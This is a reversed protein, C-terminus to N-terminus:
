RNKLRHKDECMSVEARDFVTQLTEDKDPEFIALGGAIMIGNIQRSIRNSDELLTMLSDRAIYDNGRLIAVFEDGGTRYVPSHKFVNCVIRCAEKIYQDGVNRGLTENVRSLDNIDCFAVAFPGEEGKSIAQDIRRQEEIFAHRSKVGTLSDHNAKRLARAHEQERRIQEDVSSIGVVIHRDSHNEMRTIKMHVYMPKCNFMLRYTLTFAKDRELTALVQERTFAELFM